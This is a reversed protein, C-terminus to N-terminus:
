TWRTSRSRARRRRGPRRHPDAPRHDRGRRPGRPRPLLLRRRLPGGVAAQGVEQPGPLDFTEVPRMSEPDLVHLVPGTRNGCLAVLRDRSDFALTACEELGFWSTTWRPTAAWRGRGPTPTPPGATTTCRAGATPRWGRTSPCRWSSRSRPPRTATTRRPSSCGAAPRSRCGATPCCWWWASRSRSWGSWACRPGLPEAADAAPDGAGAAGGAAGRLDVARDALWGALLLVLAVVFGM